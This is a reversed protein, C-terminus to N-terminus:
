VSIANTMAVFDSVEMREARQGPYSGPLDQWNIGFSKLANRLTKRRQNFASKVLSFFLNENCNLVYNNKRQLSIVASKVRPPPIFVHESVFFLLEVDYFAQTIVSLIGYVKNGSSSAIREAMEKQFMGVLEPVRERWEITKFLIQSSINYPFNGIVAFPQRQFVADPNLSLFDQRLIRINNEKYHDTLFGAAETDIEVATYQLDEKQILWRTLAGTGPGVELIHKYDGHGTLSAAIKRAINEDNLFHQGLSKKPRVFRNVM